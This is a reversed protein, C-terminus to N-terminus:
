ADAVGFRFVTMNDFKDFEGNSLKNWFNSYGEEQKEIPLNLVLEKM